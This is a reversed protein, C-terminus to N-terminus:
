SQALPHVYCRLKFSLRSPTLPRPRKSGRKALRYRIENVAAGNVRCESLRDPWVKCALRTGDNLMISESAPVAFWYKNAGLGCQVAYGM